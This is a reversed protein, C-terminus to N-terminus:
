KLTWNVDEPTGGFVAQVAEETAQITQATVTLTYTSNSYGPKEPDQVTNSMIHKADSPVTGTDKNYEIWVPEGNRQANPDVKEEATLDEIFTYYNKTEYKGMDTDNLLSVSDLFAGTTKMEPTLNMKYYWYGDSFTWNEKNAFNLHVVSSDNEILGDTESEQYTDGNRGEVVKDEIAGDKNVWKEDFRVRVLVDQDGTNIVEVDKNVEAGPKWDDGDGPTFDEVITSGYKGTDFENDAVMTQNFYALSGGVAVVVALGLVALVKKNKM